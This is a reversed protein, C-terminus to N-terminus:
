NNGKNTGLLFGICGFFIDRFQSLSILTNDNSLNFYKAVILILLSYLGIIGVIYNQEVIIDKNITIKTTLGNNNELFNNSLFYGFIGAISTRFVVDLNSNSINLVISFTSQLLLITMFLLLFKDIVPM